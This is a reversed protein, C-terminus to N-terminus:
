VCSMLICGYLCACVCVSMRVGVRESNCLLAQRGKKNYISLQHEQRQQQQRQMHEELKNRLRFFRSRESHETNTGVVKVEEKGKAFTQRAEQFIFVLIRCVFWLIEQAFRNQLVYKVCVRILPGLNSQICHFCNINLIHRHNDFVVVLNLIGTKM